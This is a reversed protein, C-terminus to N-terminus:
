STALHDPGPIRDVGTVVFVDGEKPAVVPETRMQVGLEAAGAKIFAVLVLLLQSWTIAGTAIFPLALTVAVGLLEVGTKVKGRWRTGVLPVLWTTFTTLVLVVLQALVVPTIPGAAVAVQVGGVVLVLFSLVSPAFRQLVPNM